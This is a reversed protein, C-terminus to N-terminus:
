RFIVSSSRFTIPTFAPVTADCSTMRRPVLQEREASSINPNLAAHTLKSCRFVVTLYCIYHKFIRCMLPDSPEWGLLGDRPAASVADAVQAAPEMM